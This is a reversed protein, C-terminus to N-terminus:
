LLIAEEDVSSSAEGAEVIEKVMQRWGERNQALVSLKTLDQSCKLKLVHRQLYENYVNNQYNELDKNLVVPLTTRPRGRYGKVNEEFYFRMAINAPINSDRRLIHGFLMWRAERMKDSIPKENTKKYLSKNTIKTPYHVGLVRRLQKRHFANISEEEAKTIGWTSSNYLLVSKVLAKYLKLRTKLKIRDKRIWINFMKNMAVTSLDKRRKIDGISRASGSNVRKKFFHM